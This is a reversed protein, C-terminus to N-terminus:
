QSVSYNEVWSFPASAQYWFGEALTALTPDGANNWEKDYGYGGARSTSPVSQYITYASTTPSWTYVTDGVTFNTLTSISNSIIDGSVPVASGVMNFGPVIANTISGTPVTGVLTV